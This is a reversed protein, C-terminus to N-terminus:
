KEHCLARIFRMKQSLGRSLLLSMTYHMATPLLGRVRLGGVTGCSRGNAMPLVFGPDWPQYSRLQDGRFYRVINAAACAGQTRAFQVSMRLPQNRHMFMASDGIAFLGPQCGIELHANVLLRGQLGKDFTLARVFAPTQVGACWIVLAQDFVMGNSLRVQRNTIGALRCNEMVAIDLRELNDRSYLKMWGPLAGLISPAAEVVIIRLARGRRAFRRRVHTAMEIGTYGGGVIICTDLCPAQLATALRECDRCSNFSYAAQQIETNGYYNPESGAAILLADFPYHRRTGIVTRRDLDIREVPDHQFAFGFRRALGDLGLSAVSPPIRGGVIDPLLPLFDFSAKRDLLTVRIERSGASLGRAAALGGFGGGIIVVDKM